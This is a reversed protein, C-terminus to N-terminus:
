TKTSENQGVRQGRPWLYGRGAWDEPIDKQEEEGEEFFMDVEIRTLGFLLFKVVPM